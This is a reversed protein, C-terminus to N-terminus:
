QLLIDGPQGTSVDKTTEWCASFWSLESRSSFSILLRHVPVFEGFVDSFVEGPPAPYLLVRYIALLAFGCHASMQKSMYLLLM